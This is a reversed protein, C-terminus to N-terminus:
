LNHLRTEIAHRCEADIRSLIQRQHNKSSQKYGRAALNGTLNIACIATNQTMMDLLVRTGELQIDNNSLDCATIRRNPALGQALVILDLDTLACMSLNIAVLGCKVDALFPCMSAVHQGLNRLQLLQITPCKLLVDSLREMREAADTGQPAKVNVSSWPGQRLPKLLSEVQRQTSAAGARTDTQSM